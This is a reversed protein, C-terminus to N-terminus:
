NVIVQELMSESDTNRIRRIKGEYCEILREEAIQKRMWGEAHERSCGDRQMVRHIREECDAEVLWISDCMEALGSEAMVAAEVFLVGRKEEKDEKEVKDLKGEEMSHFRSLLDERVAGHVIRNLLLRIGEDALVIQSLLKRDPAAVGDTVEASIEDRIRQKIEASSEMLRRAELDCDYVEYGFSRLIRSVVSKGSGIGGCIGILKVRCEVEPNDRVIKM